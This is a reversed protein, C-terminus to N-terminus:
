CVPVFLVCNRTPGSGPSLFLKQSLAALAWCPAWVLGRTLFEARRFAVFWRVPVIVACCDTVHRWLWVPGDQRVWGPCLEAEPDDDGVFPADLCLDGSAALHEMRMWTHILWGIQPVLAGMTLFPMGLAASAEGRMIGGIVCLLAMLSPTAPLPAPKM